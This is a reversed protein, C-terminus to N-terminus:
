NDIFSGINVFLDEGRVEHFVLVEGIKCSELYFGYKWRLSLDEEKFETRKRVYLKLIEM